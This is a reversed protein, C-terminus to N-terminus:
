LLMAKMLVMNRKKIATLLKLISLHKRTDHTSVSVSVFM